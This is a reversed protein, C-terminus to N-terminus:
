TAKIYAFIGVAILTVVGLGVIVGTVVGYGFHQSREEESAADTTFGADFNDALLHVTDDNVLDEDNSDQPPQTDDSAAPPADDTKAPPAVIDVDVDPLANFGFGSNNGGCTNAPM